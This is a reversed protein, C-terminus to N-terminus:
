SSVSMVPSSGHLVEALDLAVVEREEEECEHDGARKEDSVRDSFNAGRSRRSGVRDSPSEIRSSWGALIEQRGWCEAGTVSAIELTVHACTLLGTSARPSVLCSSDRSCSDAM